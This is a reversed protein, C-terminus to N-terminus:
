SCEHNTQIGASPHLRLSRPWCVPCTATLIPWLGSPAPYKQLMEEDGQVVAIYDMVEGLGLVRPLGAVPGSRGGGTGGGNHELPTAPVCSPAMFYVTMPLRGTEDIFFRIGQLGCVNAIEHPDAIATLTGHPTVARAFEGPLAMTSEIHM